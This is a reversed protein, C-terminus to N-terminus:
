SLMSPHLLADYHAADSFQSHTLGIMVRSVTHKGALNLEVCDPEFVLMPKGDGSLTSFQIFHANKLRRNPNSTASNISVLLERTLINKVASTSVIIVPLGTVHDFLRNGSDIFGDFEVSKGGFTVKVRGIFNLADRRRYIFRAIQVTLAVYVAVVGIILGIPVSADYGRAILSNINQGFLGIIGICAGGMLFTFSLFTILGLCFRNFSKFNFAILLMFIGTLIKILYQWAAAIKILPLLVAACTGVASSLILVWWKHKLRLCKAVCLLLLFNIVLNDILVYEIYIKM